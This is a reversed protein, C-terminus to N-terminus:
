NAGVRKYVTSTLESVSCFQSGANPKCTPNTTTPNNFLDADGFAIKVSVAYTGPAVQKVTLKSLRMRPSLFEQGTAKAPATPCGSTTNQRLSSTTQQAGATGEVLQYGLRYSFQQNGICFAQLAGISPTPTDTIVGGNFQIGQTITDMVTRTTNQVDIENLGKYYVRSIQIIGVTVTLLVMSFVVTAMMLEVITFGKQSQHIRKGIM